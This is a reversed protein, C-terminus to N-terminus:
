KDLLIFILDFRSLLATKMQLRSCVRSSSLAARLSTWAIDNLRRSNIGQPAAYV